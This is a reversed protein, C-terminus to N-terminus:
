YGHCGSRNALGDADKADIRAQAAGAPAHDLDVAVPQDEDAAARHFRRLGQGDRERGRLGHVQAVPRHVPFSVEHLLEAIVRM